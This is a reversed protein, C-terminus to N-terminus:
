LKGVLLGGLKGNFPLILGGTTLFQWPNAYLDAIWADDATAYLDDYAFAALLSGNFYNAPTSDAQVGLSFRNPASGSANPFSSVSTTEAWAGGDVSVAVASAMAKVAFVRWTQSYVNIGSDSVRSNAGDFHCGDLAEDGQARLFTMNQNSVGSNGTSFPTENGNSAAATTKAYCVLVISSSPLTGATSVAKRPGTDNFTVITGLADSGWMDANDLTMNLATGKGKDAATTGTNEDLMWLHDPCKAHGTNVVYSTPKLSVAM